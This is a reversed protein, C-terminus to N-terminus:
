WLIEGRAFREKRPILFPPHPRNAMVSARDRSVSFIEEQWPTPGGELQLCVVLPQLLVREVEDQAVEDRM